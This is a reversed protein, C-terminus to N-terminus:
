PLDWREGFLLDAASAPIRLTNGTLTDDGRFGFSFAVMQLIALKFTDPVASAAGYGATYTVTVADIEDRTSPWTQGYATVIRGPESTFDTDYVSTALTQPNGSTDTYAISTVTAAPPRPISLVGGSPFADLTWAYTATVLQRRTITEVHIRAAKIMSTIAPDRDTIEYEMHAKAEAVSVPEETPEVTKTLGM